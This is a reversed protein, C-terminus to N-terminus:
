RSPPVFVSFSSTTKLASLADEPTPALDESATPGDIRYRIGSSTWTVRPMRMARLTNMTIPTFGGIMRMRHTDELLGMGRVLRTIYTGEYIVKVLADM